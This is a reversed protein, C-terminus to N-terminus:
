EKRIFYGADAVIQSRRSVIIEANVPVSGKDQSFYIKIDDHKKFANGTVQFSFQWKSISRLRAPVFGSGLSIKRLFVPVALNDYEIQSPDDMDAAILKIKSESVKDIVSEGLALGNGYPYLLLVSLGASLNRSGRETECVFGDPAVSLIRAIAPRNESILIIQHNKRFQGTNLPQQNQDHEDLIIKQSLTQASAGFIEFEKYMRNMASIYARPNSILLYKKWPHKLYRSLRELIKEDDGDLQYYEVLEEYHNQARKHVGKKLVFSIIFPAASFVIVLCAIVIFFLVIQTDSVLFSERIQRLLTNTNEM